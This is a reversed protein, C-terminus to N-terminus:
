APAFGQPKLMPALEARAEAFPPPRAALSIFILGEVEETAVPLLGLQSKDLDEQMGRCSVLRGDRGYVWQHYPCVLKGARGSDETSIVTGRHRCVNQLARAQGDDGRIIIISDGGVEWTFYDGPEPIQCSHGAFLWSARWIRDVDARYVEEDLFFDHELTYGPRRRAILAALRPPPQPSPAPM